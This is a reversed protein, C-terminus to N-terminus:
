FTARTIVDRMQPCELQDVEVNLHICTNLNTLFANSFCIMANGLQQALLHHPCYLLTPYVIIENDINRLYLLFLFFM